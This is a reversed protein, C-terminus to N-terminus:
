FNNLKNYQKVYFGGYMELPKNTVNDTFMPAFVVGNEKAEKNVMDFLFAYEKPMNVYVTDINGLATIKANSAILELAWKVFIRFNEYLFGQADTPTERLMFKPLKRGGLNEVVEDEAESGEASVSVDLAAASADSNTFDDENMVTLRKSRAKEKANLVLLEAASYDFLQDEAALRSTYLISHGFPLTYAGLTRGKNLFAFRAYKESIDLLLCTATRLKQNIAMAGNAMSNAAFTINQVKIGNKQCISRINEIFEKRAGVMGYVSTQKNQLLSFTNYTLDNKNKYITGIVLNLSNEVAKKGLNPITLMDMLFFNDPLILSVNSLSVHPYKKKYVTLLKVFEEFFENNIAASTYNAAAYNNANRENNGYLYIRNDDANIFVTLSISADAM